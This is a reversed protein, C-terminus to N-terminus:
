KIACRFTEILQWDIPASNKSGIEHRWTACTLESAGAGIIADYIM